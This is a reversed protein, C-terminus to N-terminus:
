LMSKAHLRRALFPDNTRLDASNGVAPSIDISPLGEEGLEFQEPRDAQFEPDL